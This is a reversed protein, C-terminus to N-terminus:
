LTNETWRSGEARLLLEVEWGEQRIRADLYSLFRVTGLFGAVLWLALPLFFKLISPGIGWDNFTIGSVFLMGGFVIGFLVVSMYAVTFGRSLADAGAGHIQGSRRSTTMVELKRSTFPTRELIIIETIFPRLIRVLSVVLGILMLMGEGEGMDEVPDINWCILWALGVGRLVVVAWFLQLSVRGCDKILSWWKPRELFTVQGLYRTLVITALPMEFCTLLFLLWCYRFFLTGEDLWIGAELYQLDVLDALMYYNLVAMPLAGIALAILLNPLEEVWLRVAVDFIELISRERIALRTKDLQLM